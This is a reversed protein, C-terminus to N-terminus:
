WLLRRRERPLMRSIRGVPVDRNVLRKDMWGMSRIGGGPQCFRGKLNWIGQRSTAVQAERSEKIYEVYCM